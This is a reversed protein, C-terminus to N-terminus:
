LPIARNERRYCQLVTEQDHLADSIHLYTPLKVARTTHPHHVKGDYEMRPPCNTNM